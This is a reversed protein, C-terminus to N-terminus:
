ENTFIVFKLVFETDSHEIVPYANYKSLTTKINDLGYGHNKKDNKSTVFSSNIPKPATNAIKCLIAEGKCIIAIRIEKNYTQLRDCAEIANDLANGFITCIDAPAVSIYEPIQIKMSVSIGKSKAIAIKTNLIADLATNGTEVMCEAYNINKRLDSLYEDAGNLDGNDIYSQLGIQFNNFDHKFKKIQKQTILIDDLHKLQRKLHQEYQEQNKIKSAQKVIHDYLYLAFCTSFLLGFSCLIALNQMFVSSNDFSLKFILFVAIISTTFMLLFLIWYSTGIYYKEKRFRVCIINVILLALMKSIAIGLLKYTPTHVVTSVTVNLFLTICFLVMIETIGILVITLFSIIFKISLKGKFLFSPILFAVAMGVANLIGYKFLVNCFNIAAVIEFFGIVYLLASFKKNKEFFTEYMRFLLIAEIFGTFINAFNYITM